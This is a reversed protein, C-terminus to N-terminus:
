ELFRSLSSLYKIFHAATRWKNMKIVEVQNNSLATENVIYSFIIQQITQEDQFLRCLNWLHVVFVKVM